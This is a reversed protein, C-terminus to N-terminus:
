FTFVVNSKALGHFYFINLLQPRCNIRFFSNFFHTYKRNARPNRYLGNLGVWDFRFKRNDAYVSCNIELRDASNIQINPNQNPETRYDFGIPKIYVSFKCGYIIDNVRIKPKMKRRQSQAERRKGELVLVFNMKELRIGLWCWMEKKKM